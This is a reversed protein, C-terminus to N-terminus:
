NRKYKNNATKQRPQKRNRSQELELVAFALAEIAPFDGFEISALDSAQPQFMYGHLKSDKLFLQRRDKDLLRKLEDLIYSYLQEM